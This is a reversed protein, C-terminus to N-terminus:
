LSKPELRASQPQIFCNCRAIEEAIFSFSDLTSHLHIEALTKLLHLFLVIFSIQNMDRLTLRTLVWKSIQPFNASLEAWSRKCYPFSVIKRWNVRLYRIRTGLLQEKATTSFGEKWPHWREPIFNHAKRAFIVVQWLFNSSWKSGAVAHAEGTYCMIDMQAWFYRQGELFM